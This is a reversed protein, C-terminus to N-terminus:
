NLPWGRLWLYPVNQALLMRWPWRANLSVVPSPYRVEMLDYLLLIEKWDTLEASPATAHIGSICAQLLYYGPQSQTLAHQVLSHAESIMAGDWLSRDQKDLSVLCGNQDLRAHRRSHSFLCLALLGQTEPREPCLTNLLRILDIAQECIRIKIAQESEVGGYGENFMLYLMTKVAGQRRSDLFPADWQAGSQFAANKLRSLRKEMAAHSTMFARALTQSPFGAIANLALLVQQEATLSEHSCIFMLRLIDDRYIAAEDSSETAPLKWEDSEDLTVM